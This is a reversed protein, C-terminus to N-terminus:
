PEALEEVLSGALAVISSWSSFMVASSAADLIFEQAGVDELFDISFSGQNLNRRGIFLLSVKGRYRGCSLSSVVGDKVHYLLSCGSVHWRLKGVVTRVSDLVELLIEATLKTKSRIRCFDDYIRWILSASNMRRLTVSWPTEM